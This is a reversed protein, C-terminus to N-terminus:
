STVVAIRNLRATAQEMQVATPPPEPVSGHVSLLLFHLM